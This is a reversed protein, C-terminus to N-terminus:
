SKMKSVTVNIVMGLVFIYSLLYIWLMLIVINAASGYFINYSSFHTIYYSYIATFIIWLTTTILAGFNVSKSKIKKNPATTYVIKIIFFMVFFTIPWRLINYIDIMNGIDFKISLVNLIRGGFVSIVAIFVFLLGLLITIIVSKVINEVQNNYDASYVTSSAVVISKTCRSILYISSLILIIINIDFSKGEILPMIIKSTDAPFSAEIFDKISVISVSFFPLFVGLILIIPFISLLFFFAIQGPLIQMVPNSMTKIFIDFIKKTRSKVKTM